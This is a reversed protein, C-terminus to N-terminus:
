RPAEAGLSNEAAAPQTQEPGVAASRSLMVVLGVVLIIFLAAYWILPHSTEAQAKM